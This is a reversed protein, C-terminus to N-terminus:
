LVLLDRPADTLRVAGRETLHVDDEIRIGMQGAFYAGPELTFVM